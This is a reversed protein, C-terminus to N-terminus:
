LIASNSQTSANVLRADRGADDGLRWKRTSGGLGKWDREAVGCFKCDCFVFWNVIVFVLVVFCSARVWGFFFRFVKLWCDLCKFIDFGWFL